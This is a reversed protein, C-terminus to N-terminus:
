VPRQVAYWRERSSGDSRMTTSSLSIAPKPAEPRLPPQARPSYPILGIAKAAAEELFGRKLNPVGVGEGGVGGAAGGAEGM